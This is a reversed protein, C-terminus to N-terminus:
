AAHDVMDQHRAAVQERTFNPNSATVKYARRKEQVRPVQLPARQAHRHPDQRARRSLAAEAFDRDGAESPAGM